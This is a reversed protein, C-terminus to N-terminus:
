PPPRWATAPRRSFRAWAPEYRFAPPLGGRDHLQRDIYGQYKVSIEVAARVAPPLEDYRVEAWTMVGRGPRVTLCLFAGERLERSAGFTIDEQRGNEDYSPLTYSFEMGGNGSLDVAGQGGHRSIRTNDVQTYYSTDRFGSFFITWCLIAGAIVVAAAGLWLLGTKKM